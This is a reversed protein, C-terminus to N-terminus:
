QEVTKLLWYLVAVYMFAFAWTWLFYSPKRNKHRIIYVLPLISFCGGLAELLHLTREAVRERGQKALRKDAVFVCAGALNIFLLYFLFWYSQM